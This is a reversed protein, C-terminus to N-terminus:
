YQVIGEVYGVPVTFLIGTNPQDLGGTITNVIESAKKVQEESVVAFVVKNNDHDFCLFKRLSGFIPPPEVESRDVANLMGTSDLVTAGKIGAEMFGALIQGLCEVKNLVLFILQM